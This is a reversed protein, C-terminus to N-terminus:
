HVSAACESCMAVVAPSAAVCARTAAIYARRGVSTYPFSLAKLALELAFSTGISVSGGGVLFHLREVAYVPSNACM